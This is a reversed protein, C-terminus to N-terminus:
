TPRAQSLDGRAGAGGMKTPVWGPEVSNSLVDPWRHAVALALTIYFLESDSCAQTGDWPREFWEIDEWSGPRGPAHRRESPDAPPLRDMLCTLVYPALVNVALVRARGKPPAV